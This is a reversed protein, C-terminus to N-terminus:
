KIRGEKKLKNEFRYIEEVPFLLKRGFKMSAKLKKQWHYQYLTRRSIVFNWRELIDNVTLYDHGKITIM